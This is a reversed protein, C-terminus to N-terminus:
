LGLMRSVRVDTVQHPAHSVHIALWRMKPDGHEESKAISVRDYVFTHQIDPQSM